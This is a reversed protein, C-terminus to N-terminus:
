FLMKAAYVVLTVTVCSLLTSLIVAQAAYEPHNNHELAFLASNRSVPFSSAILLAQAVTGEIGLLTIIFYAIVPAAICRGALSLVLPWNLRAIKLHASQAGLTVLAVAFFANGLYELPRGAFDPLELDLTNFGLGLLLAYCIPNKLFEQLVQWGKANVSVSNLYGYTYTLLNQYILVIVQVSLGLPNNAFVAQSVPLGFNGSNPLVVSNQFTASLGREWGSLKAVAYTLLILCGSQLLLFSLIDLVAEGELNSEYINLFSVAPMLLYTTLKSLTGLDMQFKRHLWAGLGILLFVPAIVNLLIVFLIYM